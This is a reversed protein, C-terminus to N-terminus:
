IENTESDHKRFIANLWIKTNLDKRVDKNTWIEVPSLKQFQKMVDLLSIETYFNFLRGEIMGEGDGYQFSFHLIGNSKLANQLNLLAQYILNRPIHLLSSCAWIGDYLNQEDLDLFNKVTVHLGTLDSAMRALGESADFASVQFGRKLFALSDRGSGCGADLISGNAPLLPLFHGYLEDMDLGVTANFFDEANRNYFEITKQVQTDPLIM